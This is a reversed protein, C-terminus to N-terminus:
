EKEKTIIDTEIEEEHREFIPTIMKPDRLTTKIERSYGFFNDHMTVAKAYAKLADVVIEALIFDPTNGYVGEVSCQNFLAALQKKFNKEDFM